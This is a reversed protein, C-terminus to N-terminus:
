IYKKDKWLFYEMESYLKFIQSLFTYLILKNNDVTYSCKKHGLFLFKNKNLNNISFIM